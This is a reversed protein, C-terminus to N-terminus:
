HERLFRVAGDGLLDRHMRWPDGFFSIGIHSDVIHTAALEIGKEENDTGECYIIHQGETEEGFYKELLLMISNRLRPMHAGFVIVHIRKREEPSLMATFDDLDKEMETLQASIAEYANELADHGLGRTFSDLDALSCTKEKLVRNAFTTTDAL